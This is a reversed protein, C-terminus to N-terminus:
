VPCRQSIFVLKPMWSRSAAPFLFQVHFRPSVPSPRPLQRHARLHEPIRLRASERHSANGGTRGAAVGLEFHVTRAWSESPSWLWERVFVEGSGESSTETRGGERCGEKRSHQLGAERVM